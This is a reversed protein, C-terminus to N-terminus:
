KEGGKDWHLKMGSKKAFDQHANSYIKILWANYAYKTKCLERAKKVITEWDDLPANIKILNQKVKEEIDNRWSM